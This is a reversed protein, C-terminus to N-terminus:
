RYKAMHVGNELSYFHYGESVISKLAGFYSTVPDGVKEAVNRFIKVRYLKKLIWM